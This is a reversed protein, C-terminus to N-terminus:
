RAVCLVRGGPPEPFVEPHLIWALIEIGDVVRPGPRSFYSSADVAFVSGSRAAPTSAFDEIDYLRQAQEITDDLFYGCPMFVITQPAAEAIRTWEVRESRKGVSGLVDRGGAIEIMEPVWHGGVFPPDAWELALAPVPELPKTAARVADVRARLGDVAVANGGARRAVQEIEDLIDGVTSPDISIVEADCGLKDLADTVQGSPVACVHCLDQALILEPQIKRILEEDIRYLPEGLTMKEGVIRDIEGASMNEDLSLSTTSVVPKSTADPPWDCEHTVGELEGDLDLFYVIETASPLLSVIRM